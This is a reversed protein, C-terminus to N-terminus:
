IREKASSGSYAGTGSEVIKSHQFLMLTENVVTLMGEVILTTKPILV